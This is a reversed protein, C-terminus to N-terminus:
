KMWTIINDCMIIIIHFAMCIIAMCISAYCRLTVDLQEKFCGEAQLGRRPAGGHVPGRAGGCVPGGRASSRAFRTCRTAWQQLRILWLSSAIRLALTCRIIDGLDPHVVMPQEHRAIRFPSPPHLPRFSWGFRTLPGSGFALPTKKNAILDLHTSGSGSSSRTSEFSTYTAREKSKKIRHVSGDVPTGKPKM